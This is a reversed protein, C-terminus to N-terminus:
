VRRGSLLNIIALLVIAGVAGTLIQGIIATGFLTGLLFYGIFGGIIGVIINGILGLSGGKFIQAGLWGAVAGIILTWLIGM